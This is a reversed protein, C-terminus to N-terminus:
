VRTRPLPVRVTVRTGREPASRLDLSGALYKVRENMSALGLGRRAGAEDRLKEADFGRGDDFLSVRLGPEERKVELIVQAAGAHRTINNLGEQIIRFLNIEMEPALLGDIKDLEAAFKTASGEGLQELM